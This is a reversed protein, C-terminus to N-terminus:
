QVVLRPKQGPINVGPEGAGDVPHAGELVNDALKLCTRTVPDHKSHNDKERDYSNSSAGMGSVGLFHPITIQDFKGVEYSRM